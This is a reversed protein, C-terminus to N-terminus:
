FIKLVKLVKDICIFQFFRTIKVCTKCSIIFTIHVSNIFRYKYITFRKSVTMYIYIFYILNCLTTFRFRHWVYISCKLLIWCILDSAYLLVLFINLTFRLCFIYSRIDLFSHHEYIHWCRAGPAVPIDSILRLSDTIDIYLYRIFYYIVEFCCGINGWRYINKQVLFLSDSQHSWIICAEIM